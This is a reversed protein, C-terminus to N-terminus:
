PCESDLALLHPLLHSGARTPAPKGRAWGWGQSREAWAEFTALNRPSCGSWSGERRGILDVEQELVPVASRVGPLQVVESIMQQPFGLPSRAKLEYRSHGLVSPTLQGATADLSTTTVQSAFLLAVGLGIGVAALLEQRLMM